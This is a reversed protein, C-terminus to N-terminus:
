QKVQWEKTELEYWCVECRIEKRTFFWDYNFFHENGCNPCQLYIKKLAPREQPLEADMEDLTKM